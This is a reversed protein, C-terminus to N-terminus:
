RAELQRILRRLKKVRMDIIRECEEFIEREVRRLTAPSDNPAMREFGHTFKAYQNPDVTIAVTISAESWVRVPGSQARRSSAATTSRGGGATSSTDKRTAM